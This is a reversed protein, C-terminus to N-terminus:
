SRFFCPKGGWMAKSSKRFFAPGDPADVVEVRLRGENTMSLNATTGDPLFDPSADAIGQAFTKRRALRDILEQTEATSVIRGDIERRTAM